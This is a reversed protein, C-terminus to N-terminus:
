PPPAAVAITTFGIAQPDGTDAVPFTQNSFGGAAGPRGIRAVLHVGGGPSVGLTILRAATECATASCFSTTDHLLPSFTGVAALARWGIRAEYTTAGMPMASTGWGWEPEFEVTGMMPQSLVSNVINTNDFLGTAMLYVGSPPSPATDVYFIAADGSVLSGEFGLYLWDDDRAYHLAVYSDGVFPALADITNMLVGNAPNATWIPEDFVGDAHIAPPVGGDPMGVDLGPADVHADLPMVGTDPGGDHGADHVIIPGMDTRFADVDADFAPAHPPFPVSCASSVVVLLSALSRTRM